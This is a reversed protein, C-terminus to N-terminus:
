KCKQWVSAPTRHATPNSTTAYGKRRIINLKATRVFVGGWARGSPPKELGMENHAWNRVDEAMFLKGKPEFQILMDFALENWGPEHVEASDSSKKIGADRLTRGTFINRQRPDQEQEKIM